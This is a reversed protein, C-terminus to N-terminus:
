DEDDDDDDDDDADKSSSDKDSTDDDVEEEGAADEDPQIEDKGLEDDEDDDSDSDELDRASGSKGTIITSIPILYDYGDTTYIIGDAIEGKYPFSARELVGDSYSTYIEDRVDSDFKLFSRIVKAM